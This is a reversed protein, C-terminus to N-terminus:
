KNFSISKGVMDDLLPEGSKHMLTLTDNNVNWLFEGKFPGSGYEDDMDLTITTAGSSPTWRGRYYVVIESEYFGIKYAASGDSYLDLLLVLDEGDAEVITSWNGKITMYLPDGSNNANFIEAGDGSPTFNSFPTFSLKITRKALAEEKARFEDESIDLEDAQAMDYIGTTNHFFGINTYSGDKDFSFYFDSCKLEAEKGLSYEGFIRFAAGNSGCNFIKGGDILSYWNRSRGELVLTPSEGKLTYLAYLDNKFYVDETNDSIGVLLEKIDDDNIDTILYGIEDLAEDEFAQAAEVVGMFGEKVEGQNNAYKIMYYYEELVSNYIKDYDIDKKGNSGTNGKSKKGGLTSSKSKQKVKLKEFECGTMSVLALLIAMIICITKKM